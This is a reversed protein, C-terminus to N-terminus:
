KSARTPIRVVACVVSRVVTTLARLRGDGTDGHHAGLELYIEIDLSICQYRTKIPGSDQGDDLAKLHEGADIESDM